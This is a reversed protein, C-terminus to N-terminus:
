ILSEMSNHYVHQVQSLSNIIGETFLFVVASEADNGQTRMTVSISKHVRSKAPGYSIRIELPEEVSLVDTHTETETNTIRTAFNVIGGSEPYKM